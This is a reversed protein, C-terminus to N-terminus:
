ERVASACSFVFLDVRGEDGLRNNFVQSRMNQRFLNMDDSSHEQGSLPATEADLDYRSASIVVDIPDGPVPCVTALILDEFSGQLAKRGVPTTTAWRPEDSRHDTRLELHLSSGLESREDASLSKLRPTSYAKTRLFISANRLFYRAQGYSRKREEPRAREPHELFDGYFVEHWEGAEIQIWDVVIEGEGTASDFQRFSVPGITILDTSNIPKVTDNARHKESIISIGNMLYIQECVDRRLSIESGSEAAKKLGQWQTSSEPLGTDDPSGKKLGRRRNVHAVFLRHAENRKTTGREIVEKKWTKYALDLQEFEIPVLDDPSRIINSANAM